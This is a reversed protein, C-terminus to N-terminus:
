LLSAQMREGKLKPDFLADSKDMIGISCDYSVDMELVPSILSIILCHVNMGNGFGLRGFALDSIGILIRLPMTSDPKSVRGALTLHDVHRLFLAQSFHFSPSFPSVFLSCLRCGMDESADSQQLLTGDRASHLAGQGRAGPGQGPGPGPGARHHARPYRLSLTSEYLLAHLPIM